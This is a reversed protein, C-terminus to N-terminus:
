FLVFHWCVVDWYLVLASNQVFDSYRRRLSLGERVVRDLSLGGDLGMM